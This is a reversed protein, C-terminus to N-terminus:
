LSTALKYTRASLGTFTYNLTSGLPPSHSAVTQNLVNVLTLLYQTSANANNVTVQIAGNSTGSCAGTVTTTINSLAPPAPAVTISSGSVMIWGDQTATGNTGSQAVRVRYDPMPNTATVELFNSTNYTTSTASLWSSSPTNRRQWEFYGGSFGTRRDAYLRVPDGSCFSSQTTGASNAIRLSTNSIADLNDITLRYSVRFAHNETRLTFDYHYPFTAGNPVRMWFTSDKHSVDDDGSNIDCIGGKDDEWAQMNITVYFGDALSFNFSSPQYTLIVDDYVKERPACFFGPFVSFMEVGSNCEASNWAPRYNDLFRCLEGNVGTDSSSTKISARTKWTPDPPWSQDGGMQKCWGRTMKLTAKLNQAPLTGATAFLLLVFAITIKASM